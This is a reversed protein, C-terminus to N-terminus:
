VSCQTAMFCAFHFFFLRTNFWRYGHPRCECFPKASEQGPPASLKHHGSIGWRRHTTWRGTGAARPECIVWASSAKRVQFCTSSYTFFTEKNHQLIPPPPFSGGEGSASDISTELAINQKTEKQHASLFWSVPVFHWSNFSVVHWRSPNEFAQNKHGLNLVQLNRSTLARQLQSLRSWAPWVAIQVAGFDSYSKINLMNSFVTSHQFSSFKPNLSVRLNVLSTQM